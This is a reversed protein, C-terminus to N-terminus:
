MLYVEWFWLRKLKDGVLTIVCSSLYGILQQLSFSTQRCNWSFTYLFLLCYSSSSSRQFGTKKKRSAVVVGFLGLRICSIQNM